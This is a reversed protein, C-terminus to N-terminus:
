LSKQLFDEARKDNSVVLIGGALPFILGVKDQPQLILTKRQHPYNALPHSNDKSIGSVMTLSEFLVKPSFYFKCILQSLSKEGNHNLRLHCSLAVCSSM